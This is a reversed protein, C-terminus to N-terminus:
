FMGELPWVRPKLRFRCEILAERCRRCHSGRAASAIAIAHRRVPVAEGFALGVLLGLGIPSRHRGISALYSGSAACPIDRHKRKSKPRSLSKKILHVRGGRRMKGHSSMPTRSIGLLSAFRM